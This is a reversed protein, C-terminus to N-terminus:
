TVRWNPDRPILHRGQAWTQRAQQIQTSDFAGGVVGAATEGELQVLLWLGDYQGAGAEGDAATDSAGDIPQTM